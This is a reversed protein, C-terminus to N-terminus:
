EAVSIYSPWTTTGPSYRSFFTQAEFRMPLPRFSGLYNSTPMMPTRSFNLHFPIQSTSITTPSVTVCRQWFRSSRKQDTKWCM